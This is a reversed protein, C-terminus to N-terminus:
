RGALVDVVCDLGTGGLDPNEEPLRALFAAGRCTGGALPATMACAEERIILYVINRIRFIHDRLNYGPLHQVLKISCRM